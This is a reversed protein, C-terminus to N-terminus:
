FYSHVVVVLSSSAIIEMLTALCRKFLHWVM